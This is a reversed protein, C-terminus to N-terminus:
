APLDATRHLREPVRAERYVEALARRFGDGSFEDAVPDRLRLAERRAADTDALARVVGSALGRADDAVAFAHLRDDVIGEVGFGSSVVPIGRLMAEVAAFTVGAGARVPVLVVDAGSYATELSEGHGAVIFSDPRTAAVLRIEATPRAGAFVFRVEPYIELVRPAIDTMTWLAADAHGSSGFAGVVLVTPTPDGVRPRTETGDALPPRVVVARVSAGARGVLVADKASFTLVVDARRYIRREDRRVRPTRPVADNAVVVRLRAARPRQGLVYWGSGTGQYEVADAGAVAARVAASRRLARRLRVVPRTPFLRREEREFADVLRRAAASRPPDAPVLLVDVLDGLVEAAARNEPGDFSVLTVRHGLERLARLHHLLYGGETDPLGDHPVVPSFSVIRM